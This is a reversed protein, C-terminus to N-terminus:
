LILLAILICLSIGHLVSNCLNTIILKNINRDATFFAEVMMTNTKVYGYLIWCVFVYLMGIIPIL